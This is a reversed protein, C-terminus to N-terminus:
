ECSSDDGKDFNLAVAGAIMGFYYTIFRWMLMAASSVSSKLFNGFFTLFSYEIGGSAGPIPVFAGVLLVYASSTLCELLTLSKFDHMSYIVFLPVAYLCALSLINFLIGLYLLGKRHRLIKASEHFEELRNSLSEEVKKRDKVINVKDLVKVLLKMCTTTFKKSLSIMFIVVAVLTNIIFGILVLKKLILVKPFIHFIYNYVVAFVGFIVLAIQYFIFNQLVIMTGKNASIGHKTLMYIEMPQGGTSFPTIGNFFQIIVNHKVAESLSYKKSDNVTLYSIYARFFISLFFLIFAVLIYKIDVKILLDVINNFDDKLVFYMVIITIFILIYTNKKIDKIIKM